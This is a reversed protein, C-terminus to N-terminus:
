KNFNSKISQTDYGEFYEGLLEIYKLQKGHPKGATIKYYEYFIKIIKQKTDVREFTFRAKVIEKKDFALSLFCNLTEQKLHKTTVLKDTFYALVKEEKVNDFNNTFSFPTKVEALKEKPRETEKSQTLQQLKDKKFDLEKSFLIYDISTGTKVSVLNGNILEKGELEERDYFDATEFYDELVKELIKIRYNIFFKEDAQPHNGLFEILEAQYQKENIENQSVIIRDPTKIYSSRLAKIEEPTYQKKM